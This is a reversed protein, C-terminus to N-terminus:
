RHVTERRGVSFNKFQFKLLLHQCRVTFVHIVSVCYTKAASLNDNRRQQYDPYYDILLNPQTGPLLTALNRESRM